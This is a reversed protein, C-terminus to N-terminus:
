RAGFRRPGVVAPAETLHRTQPYDIRRHYVSSLVKVFQEEVQAALQM